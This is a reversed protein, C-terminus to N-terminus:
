DTQVPCAQAVDVHEGADEQARDDSHLVRRVRNDWHGELAAQPVSGGCRGMDYFSTHNASQVRIRAWTQKCNYKHMKMIKVTVLRDQSTIGVKMLTM